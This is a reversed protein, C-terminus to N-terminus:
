TGETTPRVELPIARRSAPLEYADPDCGFTRLHALASDYEAGVVRIREETADPTMMMTAISDVAQV